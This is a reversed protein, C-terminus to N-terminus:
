FIEQRPELEAIWRKMEELSESEIVGRQIAGFMLYRYELNRTHSQWLLILVPALSLLWWASASCSVFIIIATLPPVIALRFQSESKLRDAEAFLQPEKGLLLTAPLKIEEAMGSRATMGRYGVEEEPNMAEEGEKREPNKYLKDHALEDYKDVPDPSLDHIGETAAEEQQWRPQITSNRLPPVAEALCDRTGLQTSAFASSIRCRNPLGCDRGGFRDL